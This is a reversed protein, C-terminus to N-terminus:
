RAGQPRTEGTEEKRGPPGGDADASVTFSLAETKALGKPDATLRLSSAQRTFVPAALKRVGKNGLGARWGKLSPCLPLSAGERTRM